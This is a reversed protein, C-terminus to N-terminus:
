RQLSKIADKLAVAEAPTVPLRDAGCVLEPAAVECDANVVWHQGDVVVIRQAPRVADVYALSPGPQYAACGAITLMLILAFVRM